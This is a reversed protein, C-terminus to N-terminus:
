TIAAGHSAAKTAPASGISSCCESSIPRSSPPIRISSARWRMVRGAARRDPDALAGDDDEPVTTLCQRPRRTRRISGAVYTGGPPHAARREAARALGPAALSGACLRRREARHGRGPLVGYRIGHEGDGSGRGRIGGGLLAVGQSYFAYLTGGWVFLLPWLLVPTAFFPQLLLPGFASSLACIGLLASAARISRGAIRHAGAPGRQGGHIGRALAAGGARWVGRAIRVAAASDLGRVGGLRRGLGRAHGCPRARSRARHPRGLPAFRKRRARPTPRAAGLPLLTVILCVAGIVFPQAGARGPSNAAAVPGASSASALIGHRLDWSPAARTAQREGSNM